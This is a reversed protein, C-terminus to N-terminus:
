HEKVFIIVWKLHTLVLSGDSSGELLRAAEGASALQLIPTQIQGTSKIEQLRRAHVPMCDNCDALTQWVQLAQEVMGKTEYLFGLTRLKGSKQLLDEVEEQVVLSLHM